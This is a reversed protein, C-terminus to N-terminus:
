AKKYRTKLTTLQRIITTDYEYGPLELKIGGLLSTDITTDLSIHSAGTKDKAFAKIEKLTADSLDHATTISGAVHGHEALYFQIDRVIVSLERTRRTWLLYAALQLAIDKQPKGDVLHTAVHLALARRSIKRAM